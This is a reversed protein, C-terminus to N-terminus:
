LLRDKHNGQKDVYNEFGEELLFHTKLIGPIVRILVRLQLM